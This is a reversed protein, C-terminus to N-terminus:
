VKNEASNLMVVCEGARGGKRRRDREPEKGSGVGQPTASVHPTTLVPSSASLWNVPSLLPEPSFCCTRTELFEYARVEM